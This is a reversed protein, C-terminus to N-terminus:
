ELAVSIGPDRMLDESRASKRRSHTIAVERITWGKKEELGLLFLGMGMEREGSLLDRGKM